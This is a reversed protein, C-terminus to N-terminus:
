CCPGGVARKEEGDDPARTSKERTESRSRRKVTFVRMYM